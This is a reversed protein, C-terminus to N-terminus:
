DFVLTRISPVGHDQRITVALQGKASSKEKTLVAILLTGNAAQTEQTVFHFAEERQLKQADLLKFKSSSHRVAKLLRKCAYVSTRKQRKLLHLTSPFANAKLFLSMRTVIPCSRATGDNRVRTKPFNARTVNQKNFRPWFSILDRRRYHM